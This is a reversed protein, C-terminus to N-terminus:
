RAPFPLLRLRSRNNTVTVLAGLALESAMQRLAQVIVDGITDPNIDDPRIQVVSPKMGGTAALIAGFDLDHTLVVAEYMAAYAMIASDDADSAGILSWHEAEHGAARLVEIWRPSLNMDVVLRM